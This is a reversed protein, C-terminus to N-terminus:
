WSMRPVTFPVNALIADIKASQNERGKHARQIKTEDVGSMKRARALAAKLEKYRTARMMCRRPVIM